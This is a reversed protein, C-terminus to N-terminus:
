MGDEPYLNPNADQHREADIADVTQEEAANEIAPTELLEKYMFMDPLVSWKEARSVAGRLYLVERALLWFILGLSNSGKNNAPIAIDVNNLTNDTNCFAVVITDNKAAESIVQHDASPDAVIVVRPQTFQKTVQNTLFGPTWRGAVSKAGTYHAFKLVPRMAYQRSGVACISEKPYAALVRAAMHIKELTKQLNIIHHGAQTRKYIYQSMKQDAGKSGIQTQM